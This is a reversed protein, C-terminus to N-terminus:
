NRGSYYVNVGKSDKIGILEIGTKDNEAPKVIGVALGELCHKEIIRLAMEPYATTIFGENGMPWKAYATEAPTNGALEIERPDPKFLNRIEVFLNHKALPAALKGKYAGGSMHYVSSASRRNLLEEFVSYFVTSPEGLFEMFYRGKPTRHWNEGLMAVMAERKGTIGNSRPNPRGRISILYEGAHPTPPNRLRAEDIVSVASGSINFADADANYGRIRDEVFEPQMIGIVGVERAFQAAKLEIDCYPITGKIELVASIVKAQAGLKSGDDLTMAMFDKFAFAHKNERLYIETKTGVGDSNTFVPLGEPDFCAYRNGKSAFVSPGAFDIKKKISIMTGSLNTSQVCSGLMAIEGNMIALKSATAREVLTNAITELDLKEPTSADIVDTFAIPKACIVAAQAILREVLSAAYDKTNQKEPDAGASHVYVIHNNPIRLVAVGNKGQSVIDVYQSNKLTPACKASMTVSGKAKELEAAIYSDVATTM